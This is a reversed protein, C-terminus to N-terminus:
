PKASEPVGWLGATVRYEENHCDSCPAGYSDQIVGGDDVMALWWNRGLDDVYDDRKVEIGHAEERDVSEHVIVTGVPFVDEMPEWWNDQDISAYLDVTDLDSNPVPLQSIWVNRLMPRASYVPMYPEPNVRVLENQGLTRVLELVDAENFPGASLGWPMCSGLLLVLM